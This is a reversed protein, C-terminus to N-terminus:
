RRGLVASPRIRLPPLYISIIGGGEGLLKKQPLGDFGMAAEKVEEDTWGTRIVADGLRLINLVGCYWFPRDSVNVHSTEDLIFRIDARLAAYGAADM